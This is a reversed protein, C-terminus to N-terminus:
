CIKNNLSKEKTMLFRLSTSNFFDLKESFLIKDPRYNLLLRLRRCFLEECKLAALNELITSTSEDDLKFNSCTQKM